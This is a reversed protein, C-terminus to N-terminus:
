RSEWSHIAGGLNPLSYNIELAGSPKEGARPNQVVGDDVKDDRIANFVDEPVRVAWKSVQRSSGDEESIIDVAVPRGNPDLAEVVIYFNEISGRGTTRIVGTMEGPRSVIRLQLPQRIHEALRQLDQLADQTAEVQNLAFATRAQEIALEVAAKAPETRAISRATQAANEITGRLSAITAALQQEAILAAETAKAKPREVFGWWGAWITGVLTALVVVSGGIRRRNIWAILLRTKLGPPPPTYEFERDKLAQVGQAIVADSVEIGQASYAARVREILATERAEANLARAVLRQEHRLTDVVDMALMVDSLGPATKAETNM